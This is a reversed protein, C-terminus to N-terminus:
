QILRISAGNLIKLHRNRKEIKGEKQESNNSENKNVKLKQGNKGQDVSISLFLSEIACLCCLM